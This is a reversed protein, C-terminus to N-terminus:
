RSNSRRALVRETVVDRRPPDPSGEPLEPQEADRAEARQDRKELRNVLRKIEDRYGVWQLGLNEVEAELRGCRRILDTDLASDSGEAGAPGPPGVPGRFLRDFLGM